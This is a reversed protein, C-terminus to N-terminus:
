QSSKSPEPKKKEPPAPAPEVAWPMVAAQAESLEVTDGVAYPKGDHELSATVMYRAM